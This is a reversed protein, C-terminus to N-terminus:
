FHPERVRAGAFGRVSEVHERVTTLKYHAGMLDLVEAVIALKTETKVDMGPFFELGDLDSNSIFDLPHLLISPETKTLRCLLLATRFYAMAILRSYKALYLIYSLHIPTRFLPMTTVPLEYLRRNEALQWSFAKLPRRADAFTGFL